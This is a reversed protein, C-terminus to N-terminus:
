NYYKEPNIIEILEAKQANTLMKLNVREEKISDIAAIPIGRPYLSGDGSTEVFEGYVMDNTSDIYVLNTCDKGCGILIARKNSIKTKVPIRSSENTILMVRSFNEGATIIRGLLFGNSTVIDGKKVNQKSGASIIALQNNDLGTEYVLEARINEQQNHSHLRLIRRLQQNEQSIIEARQKINELNHNAIKLKINETHLKDFNIANILLEIFVKCYNQVPNIASRYIYGNLDVLNNEIKLASPNFMMIVITLILSAKLVLSYPFYLFNYGRVRTSKSYVKARNEIIAM